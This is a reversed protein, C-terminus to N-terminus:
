LLKETIFNIFYFKFFKSKLNKFSGNYIILISIKNTKNKRHM